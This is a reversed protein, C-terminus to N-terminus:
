VVAVPPLRYASTISRESARSCSPPRSPMITGTAETEVPPM